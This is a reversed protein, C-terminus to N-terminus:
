RLSPEQFSIGRRPVLHQPKEADPAAFCNKCSSKGHSQYRSFLSPMSLTTGLPRCNGIRIPSGLLDTGQMPFDSRKSIMKRGPRILSGAQLPTEDRPDLFQELPTAEAFPSDALPQVDSISPSLRSSGNPSPGEQFLQFPNHSGRPNGHLCGFGWRHCWVAM